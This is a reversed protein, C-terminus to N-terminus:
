ATARRRRLREAHKARTTKWREHFWMWDGPHQRICDEVAETWAHTLRELEATRPANPRPEIPDACRVELGKPTRVVFTPVLPVDARYALFAPGTPTWAEHGFFPLFMGGIRAVDQDAAVGVMGGEKLIRLAIRPSDTQYLTRAGCRSRARELIANLSQNPVRRAVLNPSRSPFRERYAGGLYEWNGVHATVAVFGRQEDLAATVRDFSPHWSVYGSPVGGRWLQYVEAVIYGINRCVQSRIRRKKADTITDGFVLDLNARITRGLVVRGVVRAIWGGAFRMWRFPIPYLAWVAATALWSQVSRRIGRTARRWGQRQKRTSRPQETATDM